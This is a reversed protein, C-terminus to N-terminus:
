DLPTITEKGDFDFYGSESIAEEIGFDKNAVTISVDCFYSTNRVNPHKKKSCNIKDITTEVLGMTAGTTEIIGQEVLSEVKKSDNGCGTILITALSITFIRITM